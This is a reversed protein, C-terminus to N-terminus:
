AGITTQQIWQAGAQRLATEVAGSTRPDVLAIVNGGLGAGSLKAGLSGASQAAQLLTTIAPSSVGIDELLTQNQNMLRGLDEQDGRDLARIADATISGIQSFLREFRDQDAQWADRVQGVVTGTPSPVGTDAIVFAFAEGVQLPQPEQDRVFRILKEYAVVTNDIGSPTGHHIKELEYAHGILSELSLDEGLYEAMAKLMAVSIAASSGLGSEPPIDSKITLKFSPFQDGQLLELSKRLIKALRAGPDIAHLWGSLGIDPAHIYLSSPPHDEASVADAVQDRVGPFASGKILEIKAIAKLSHVPAAIAPRGYVVAHEGFLIIKGPASAEIM